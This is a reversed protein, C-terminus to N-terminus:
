AVKGKQALRKRGLALSALEDFQKDFAPTSRSRYDDIKARIADTRQLARDALDMVEAATFTEIQLLYEAQDLDKMLWDVKADFSIAITPKSSVFNLIASHLRSAILLDTSMLVDVLDRWGAVTPVLIRRDIARRAQPDLAQLLENITTVDSISSRVLVVTSDRALLAHVVDAMQKLYREYVPSEARPWSGPRAYAIPSIAVTAGTPALPHVSVALGPTPLNLALDPVVADSAATPFFTSAAARSNKDRYSRYSAARLAISLFRRSVTHKLKGAGVSAIAFPVRAMRALLAWKLLAYPHGWPGGWEEDLQGGGSAILLDHRSIFEYGAISHRIENRLTRVARGLWRMARGALPLAVVLDRWHRFVRQSAGANGSGRAEDSDASVSSDRSMGYFPRDTAILAFARRSHRESFNRCNLTIGSFEASPLRQRLMSILADQIAADGFNNGSYPSLLAIRPGCDDVNGRHCEASGDGICNSGGTYLNRSAPGHGAITSKLM